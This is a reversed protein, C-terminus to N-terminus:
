GARRPPLNKVSGFESIGHLGTFDLILRKKLGDDGTGEFIAYEVIHGEKESVCLSFLEDMTKFAIEEERMNLDRVDTYVVRGRFFKTPLKKPAARTGAEVVPPPSSVQTPATVAVEARVATAGPASPPAVAAKGNVAAIVFGLDPYSGCAMCNRYGDTTTPFAQRCVATKGCPVHLVFNESDKAKQNYEVILKTIRQIPKNSGDMMSVLQGELTNKVWVISDRLDKKTFRFEM